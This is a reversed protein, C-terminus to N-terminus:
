AALRRNALPRRGVEGQLDGPRNRAERYPQDLRNAAVFAVAGGQRNHWRECSAGRRHSRTRLRRREEKTEALEQWKDKIGERSAGEAAVPSDEPAPPLPPPAASGPVDLHDAEISSADRDAARARNRARELVAELERINGSWELGKATLRETATGSLEWDDRVDTRNLYSVAMAPIDWRRERLPPLTIPVTALRYYLDQRFRKEAIAQEIDGNTVSLLRVKATKPEREQYGLPRYWGFQTFDLLLQQAHPPLNLVEDLILTGGDAHEVLGRRQSVAGSFSGREHGFIESTITNLDDAMGLTARVIPERHCARAFATALRTKGTGSEGLFIISANSEMAGRLEDAIASMSDPALLEDLELQVESAQTARAVLLDQQSSEVLAQQAIMGGLFMGVVEVFQVFSPDEGQSSAFELYLGGVLSRGKPSRDPRSWLPVAIFSGEDAYDVSGAITKLERQVNTLMRDVHLALVAPPVGRFSATRSRHLAGGGKSELTSWASGAGLQVCTAELTEEIFRGGQLGNVSAALVDRIRLWFDGPDTDAM